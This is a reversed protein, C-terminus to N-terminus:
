RDIREDRNIDVRANVLSLELGVESSDYSRNGIWSRSVREIM